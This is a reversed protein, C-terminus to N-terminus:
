DGAQAFNTSNKEIWEELDSLKYRVVRASLTM